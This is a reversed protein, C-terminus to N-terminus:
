INRSFVKAPIRGPNQKRRMCRHTASLEGAASACAPRAIINCRPLDLAIARGERTSFLAQSGPVNNRNVENRYPWRTRRQSNFGDPGDNKM